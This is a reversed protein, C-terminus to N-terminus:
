FPTVAWGRSTSSCLEFPSHLRSLGTSGCVSCTAPSAAHGKDHLGSCGVVQDGFFTRFHCISIGRVGSGKERKREGENEM